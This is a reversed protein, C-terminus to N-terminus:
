IIIKLSSIFDLLEKSNVCENNGKDVSAGETAMGVVELRENLLPGGSNGQRIAISVDCRSIGSRSYVSIVDGSIHSVPRGRSWNPFGNITVQEKTKPIKDSVSFFRMSKPHAGLFKLVAIDRTKDSDILILEYESNDIPDILFYKGDRAEDGPDAIVHQCTLLLGDSVLFITGQVEEEPLGIEDTGFRSNIVYVAQEVHSSDYVVNSVTLFKNSESLGESKATILLENFILALRSYISDNDGRVMKVYLLRGRLVADFKPIAGSKLGREYERKMWEEQTSKYGYTKWAHLLGRIGDIYSRRVNPFENVILGTVEMRRFKSSIRSKGENVSFGNDNIIKLLDDGLSLNVGDFKCFSVPLKDADKSSFSFTLDDCYRTYIVRHKKALNILDRDLSRCILNSIIPSTPAGQVLVGKHCCLHALVTAAENSFNLPHAQFVGRVRYFTISPFFDKLDVNLIFKTKGNCHAEANSVVNRGRHFGHVCSKVSSAHEQLYSLLSKQLSKVKASPASIRRVGGSKKPIVFDIYRPEPYIISSIENYPQGFIKPAMWDVLIRELHKTLEDIDAM